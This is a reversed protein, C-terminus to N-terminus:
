SRQAAPFTLVFTAGQGPASTVTVDGGHAQAIERVLALGIGYSKRGSRTTHESGHSFRTFLTAMTDADIGVGDDAVEVSIVPGDRHLRIEVTGGQHQHGLANDVLGTLARRIAAGSGITEFEGTAHRDEGHLRLTVGLGDAYPAMSDRVATAVEAVDVRDRAPKGATMTASALLDDVIDALARTDAVLAEADARVAAPDAAGARHALMQARTHLVTLPARLEHSADAVFRRQLELAQALPRVSRRTFLVVVAISALIGALEAFAVSTLLRNRGAHYPALDMMAVVRGEPRDVVLTRYHRGDARLDGLGTPGALLPVGPEGGDSVSVAGSKDRLALEMDPPPDNADDATMALTQLENNIQRNQARVYVTFVVGGVVLLVLALAVSAQIAAIRGARKVVALDGAPTM